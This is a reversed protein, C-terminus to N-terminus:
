SCFFIGLGTTAVLPELAKIFIQKIEEKAFTYGVNCEIRLSFCGEHRFMSNVYCIDVKEGYANFLRTELRNIIEKFSKTTLFSSRDPQLGYITFMVNKRM